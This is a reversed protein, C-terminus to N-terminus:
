LRMWVAEIPMKGCVLCRVRRAEAKHTDCKFVTSRNCCNTTRRWTAPRDCPTHEEQMPGSANVVTLGYCVVPQGFDAVDLRDLVEVETMAEELNSHDM